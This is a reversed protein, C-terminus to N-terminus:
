CLTQRLNEADGQGGGEVRTRKRQRLYIFYFFFFVLRVTNYFVQTIEHTNKEVPQINLMRMGKAFKFSNEYSISVKSLWRLSLCTVSDAPIIIWRILLFLSELNFIISHINKFSKNMQCILVLLPFPLPLPLLLIGASCSAQHLAQDWYGSIMVWASPLHGVSQAVWICRISYKKLCKPKSMKKRPYPFFFIQKKKLSCTALHTILCDRNSKKKINCLFNKFELITLM